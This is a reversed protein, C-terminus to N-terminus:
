SIVTSYIWTIYIQNDTWRQGFTQFILFLFNTFHSSYHYNSTWSGRDEGATNEIGHLFEFDYGKGTIADGKYHIHYPGINKLLSIQYEIKDNSTEKSKEHRAIQWNSEFESWFNRPWFWLRCWAPKEVQCRHQNTSNQSWDCFFHYIWSTNSWCVYSITLIVM